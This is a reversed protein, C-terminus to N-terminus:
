AIAPMWCHRRSSGWSEGNLPFGHILVIPQGDGQDTYYLEIDASNETGVTIYGM